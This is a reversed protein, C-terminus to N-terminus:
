GSAIPTRPAAIPVRTACVPEATANRTSPWRASGTTSRRSSRAAIDLMTRMERSRNRRVSASSDPRSMVVATAARIPIKTTAPWWTTRSTHDNSTRVSSPNAIAAWAM